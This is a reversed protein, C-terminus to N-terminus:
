EDGSVVGGRDGVGNDGAAAVADGARAGRCFADYRAAGCDKITGSLPEDGAQDVGVNV